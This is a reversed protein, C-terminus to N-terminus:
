SFPESPELAMKPLLPDLWGLTVALARCGPCHELHAQVLQRDLDELAGDTLDPLLGAARECPSGSTRELVNRILDEDRRRQDDDSSRGDYNNRNHNREDNM